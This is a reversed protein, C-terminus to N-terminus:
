IIRSDLTSCGALEEDVRFQYDPIISVSKQRDSCFRTAQRAPVKGIMRDLRRGMRVGEHELERKHTRFQPFVDSQFITVPMCNCTYKTQETPAQLIKSYVYLLDSVVVFGGNLCKNSKRVLFVFLLGVTCISGWIDATELDLTCGGINKYGFVRLLWPGASFLPTLGFSTIMLIFPISVCENRFLVIPDKISLNWTWTVISHMSSLSRSFKECEFISEYGWSGTMKGAAIHVTM